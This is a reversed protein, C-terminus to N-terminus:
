IPLSMGFERRPRCRLGPLKDVPMGFMKIVEQIAPFEESSMFFTNGVFMPAIKYKGSKFIMAIDGKFNNMAM